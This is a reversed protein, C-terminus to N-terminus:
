AGAGARSFIAASHPSLLEVSSRLLEVHNPPVDQSTLATGGFNAILVREQGGASRRVRLVEGSAEASVAGTRLVHDNHRLALMVRYLALVRAHPERTREEWLLKCRTFTALHQPDPIKARRAPDSFAAFHKFEERRGRSVAAGLEAEHDSFFLFPARSAWEQGMFLLPTSPLFLLLMSALCYAELDIDDSLREGMARNGIQDHNQICYVLAARPLDGLARGRPEQQGPPTEGEYLWGREIARALGAAGPQYGAYYGDREGTLSVRLQHHFDDAWIGDLGVERVLRPDNRDDEAILLPCTGLAHAAEVLERVVHKPSRPDHIAHVADLRLGDFRFERLWYCANDLMLARMAPHAYNPADGWPNSADRTFYAPHFAGLYNGAPGFHNYVVDLLVSLGHGHAADVLERLEDPTGYPAFPAWIAVGDYGWGRAGAFAAVPMLELTTVGLEALAPLKDIAARYTGAGTFTGVHLEYIVTDALSRVVHGHRFTHRPEVVMAPGHVGDPLFRAYPDPFEHGDLAFKYRTGHRADEVSVEHVGHASLPMDHRAREVGQEYLVLECQKANSFSAFRTQTGQVHAGLAAGLAARELM